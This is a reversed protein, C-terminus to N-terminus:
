STIDFTILDAGADVAKMAVDLMMLDGENLAVDTLVANPMSVGYSNNNTIVLANGALHSTQTGFSNILGKTSGDYKITSETTVSIEAGRNVTQFGTSEFGTFVAPSEINVSFSQMIADTAYVKIGSASNLFCDTTNAYATITPNATSALDPVKGTQLTASFKYRGGEETSDASLTFSTVVCGFFEM